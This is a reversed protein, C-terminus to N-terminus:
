VLCERSAPADDDQDTKQPNTHENTAASGVPAAATSLSLTWAGATRATM